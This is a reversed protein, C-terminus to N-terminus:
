KGAKAKAELAALRKRFNGPPGIFKLRNITELGEAFKNLHEVQLIAYNFLVEKNSNQEKIITKYIEEAREFKGGATLAIAYNTLTKPDKWGKRFVTELVIQAKTYDKQTVYISGLNASAVVDDSNIELAKRFELIAERDKKEALYVIGLNSHIESSNSHDAIAKRLLYEAALYRGKKYNFLAMANLAKLNNPSDFLIQSSANFIEQDSQTRIAENLQHIKKNAESPPNEGNLSSGSLTGVENPGSEAEGAGATGKVSEESTKSTKKVSREIKSDQDVVAQQRGNNSACSFLGCSVFVGALIKFNM